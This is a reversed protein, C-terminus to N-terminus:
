FPDKGCIWSVKERGLIFNIVLINYKHKVIQFTALHVAYIYQTDNVIITFIALIMCDNNGVLLLDNLPSDLIDWVIFFNYM